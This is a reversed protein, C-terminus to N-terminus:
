DKELEITVRKGNIGFNYSTTLPNIYNKGFIESAKIVLTNNKSIITFKSKNDDIYKQIIKGEESCREMEEMEKIDRDISSVQSNSEDIIAFENVNNEIYEKIKDTEDGSIRFYEDDLKDFDTIEMCLASLEKLTKIEVVRDKHKEYLSRAEEVIRSINKAGWTEIIKSFLSEFVYEGYGDYILKLFSGDISWGEAFNSQSGRMSGDMFYFTLFTQQSSNLRPMIERHNRRMDDTIFLSFYVWLYKSARILDTRNIKPLIDLKEDM